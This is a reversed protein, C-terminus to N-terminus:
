TSFLAKLLNGRLEPSSSRAFTMPRTKIILAGVASPSRAKM